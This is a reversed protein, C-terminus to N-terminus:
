VENTHFKSAPKIGWPYGQESVRVQQVGQGKYDKKESKWPSVWAVRPSTHYCFGVSTQAISWCYLDKLELGPKNSELRLESTWTNFRRDKGDELLYFCSM